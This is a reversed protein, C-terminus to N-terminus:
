PSSYSPYQQVEGDTQGGQRDWHGNPQLHHGGQVRARAVKEAGGSDQRALVALRRCCRWVEERTRMGNSNSNSNRKTAFPPSNASWCPGVFYYRVSAAKSRFSDLDKESM